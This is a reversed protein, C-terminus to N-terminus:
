ASAAKRIPRRWRKSCRAMPIPTPGSRPKAEPRSTGIACPRSPSRSCALVADDLYGCRCPNMAAVLQVRAPYVAHANGCAVSVRGSEVPQRLAKLTARAFEPLKDLFLVGLHALSVAGPRARVGGGVLAPLTASNHPDRFPRRRRLKGGELEGALSDDFGGAGRGHGPAAPDRCAAGGADIKGLGAPRDDLSQARGGGRGRGRGAETQSPDPSAVGQFPQDPFSANGASPSRDRGGVRSRRRLDGSLDTRPRLGVGRDGGAVRGFRRRHRRRAGVRGPRRLRCHRRRRDRGDCWAIGACDSSRFPGNRSSTPRRSTSRSGGPRSVRVRRPERPNGQVPGRDRGM